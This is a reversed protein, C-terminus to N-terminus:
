GEGGKQENLLERAECQGCQAGLMVNCYCQTPSVFRRLVERLRDRQEVLATHSNYAAAIKEAWDKAERGRGQIYAIAVTIGNNTVNLTVDGYEHYDFDRVSLEGDGEGRAAPEHETTPEVFKHGTYQSHHQRLAGCRVSGSVLKHVFACEDNDRTKTTMMEGRRYEGCVHAASTQYYTLGCNDCTTAPPMAISTSRNTTTMTNLREKYTKQTLGQPQWRVVVRSLFLGRGVNLVSLSLKHSKGGNAM